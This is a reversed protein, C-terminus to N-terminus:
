VHSPIERGSSQHRLSVPQEIEALHRQQEQDYLASEKELVTVIFLLALSVAGLPLGAGWQSAEGVDSIAIIPGIVAVALLIKKLM